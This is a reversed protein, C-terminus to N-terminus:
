NRILNWIAWGTLGVSLGFFVERMWIPPIMVYHEPFSALWVGQIMYAFAAWTILCAAVVAIIRLIRARSRMARM